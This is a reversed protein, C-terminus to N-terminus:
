CRAIWFKRFRALFNQTKPERASGTVERAGNTMALQQQTSGVTAPHASRLGWTQRRPNHVVLASLSGHRPAIDGYRFAPNEVTRPSGRALPECPRELRHSLPAEPHNMDLTFSLIFKARCHVLGFEQLLEVCHAWGFVEESNAAFM